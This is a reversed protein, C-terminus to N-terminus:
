LFAATIVVVKIAFFRFYCQMVIAAYRHKPAILGEIRGAQEPKRPVCELGPSVEDM